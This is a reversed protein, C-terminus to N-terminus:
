RHRRRELGRCVAQCARLRRQAPRTTCHLRADARKYISWKCREGSAYPYSRDWHCQKHPSRLAIPPNQVTLPSEKHPKVSANREPRPRVRGDGVIFRCLRSSPSSQMLPIDTIDCERLAEPRATQLPRKYAADSTLIRPAQPASM